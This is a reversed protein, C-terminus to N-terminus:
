DGDAPGTRPRPQRQEALSQRLAACHDKVPAGPDTPHEVARVRLGKPLHRPVGLSPAVHASGALLVVTKGPVHAATIVRAMTEDRAVQVRTMPVIQAEPLLGCHGDRIARQQANWAAADLQGDIAANRMAARMESHPLNAGIVPVGARVATMIAPAYAPWPWAREEWRLADRVASDQATAPLGATSHGREAMEIAVAALRSTAALREIAERHLRHHAPADHQEGLLLADALPLPLDQSTACAALASALTGALLYRRAPRVISSSKWTRM